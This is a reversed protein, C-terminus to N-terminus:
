MRTYNSIDAPTGGFGHLVFVLPANAPLNNPVHLTYSRAVGDVVLTENTTTGITGVTPVDDDGCGTMCCGVAFLITIWYMREIGKTRTLFM